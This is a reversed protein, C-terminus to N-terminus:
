RIVGTFVLLACIGCVVLLLREAWPWPEPTEEDSDWPYPESHRM